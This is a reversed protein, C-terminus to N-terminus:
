PSVWRHARSKRGSKSAQFGLGVACLGQGAGSRQPRRGQSRAAPIAGTVQPLAASSPSPAGSIGRASAWRNVQTSCWAQAQYPFTPTRTGGARTSCLCGTRLVYLQYM